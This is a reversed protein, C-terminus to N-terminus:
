GLLSHLSSVFGQIQGPFAKRGQWTWETEGCSDPPTLAVAVGLFRMKLPSDNDEMGEFM